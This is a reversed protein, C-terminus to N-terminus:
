LTFCTRVEERGGFDLVEMELDLLEKKLISKVVRGARARREVASAAGV